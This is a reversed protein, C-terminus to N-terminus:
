FLMGMGSPVLNSLRELRHFRRGLYETIVYKDRGSPKWITVGPGGSEVAGGEEDQAILRRLLDLQAGTISRANAPLAANWPGARAFIDAILDYATM